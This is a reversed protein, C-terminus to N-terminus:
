ISALHEGLFSFIQEVPTWTEVCCLHMSTSSAEHVVSISRCHLLIGSGWHEVVFSCFHRVSSWHEPPEQLGAALSCHMLTGLVVQTLMGFCCQAINFSLLADYLWRLLADVQREGLWQLHRVTFLCSHWDMGLLFHTGMDSLLHLFTGLFTQMLTGRVVHVGLVFLFITNINSDSTSTKTLNKM